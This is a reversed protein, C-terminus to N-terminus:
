TDKFRFISLGPVLGSGSKPLGKPDVGFWLQAAELVTFKDILDWYFYNIM